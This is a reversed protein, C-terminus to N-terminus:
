AQGYIGKIWALNIVREGTLVYCDRCYTNYLESVQKDRSKKDLFPFKDGKVDTELERQKKRITCNNCVM